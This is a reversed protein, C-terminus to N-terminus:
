CGSSYPEAPEPVEEKGGEIFSKMFSKQSPVQNEKIMKQWEEDTLRKNEELFEYYSFAAGRTMYLKGNIPVVVYMEYAPGVGVEFYGGASFKNPAVTHIDAIVAMNKDTESTIEFWRAAGEAFSSTLYELLGGYTLLQYNEEETLVENNLEKISCNILFNLLDEFTQMKSEIDGTLIEKEKLNERSYKTLWLLKEYVEISPEVYGKVQPPEEGGGCEAGSQKGYLITDHKLEAWSGMATSLSKDLWADNMMFSPYGEDIPKLLGKLTWLWGYYMNSQWKKDDVKKFKERMKKFADIYGPWKKNEYYTNIQLNYARESGLVGMVDLGSPIPRELPEVLAQLIESDPIYRQGMFRFQKLVPTTVETYQQKIEPEPLKDALKYVEDLKEQDNLENLDVHNGYVKIFIKKYDYFSLDDAKGVYFVTPDYVKEWRNIDKEEDNGLLLSHTILLAQLTQEVDRLIKNDKKIYFPFPAQGYWMMTKFYRKLDESRTYHGRPRYQSYDLEFPFIASGEFGEMHDILEVERNILEQAEVSITDPLEKGLTCWAVGFYAINKLQAKKVEENEIKEYLYISKDLMSETLEELVSVLKEQELKRLSYDYFIHYVQLVSDTTIFSPIKKYENNEYIYFLQEQKTPSVFFGNKILLEKQKETFEGFQDINEINSLDDSVQYPVVKGEVKTPVFPVNINERNEELGFLTEDLIYKEQTIESLANETQMEEKTEKIEETTKEIVKEKTAQVTPEEKKAQSSACGVASFITVCLYVFCLLFVGLKKKIM